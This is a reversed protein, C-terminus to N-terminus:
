GLKSIFSSILDSAAKVTNLNASIARQIELSNISEGLFFVNSQELRGSSITGATGSASIPSAPSGSSLTETFTTGSAQGLGAPNNFYTMAIRYGTASGNHNLAGTGTDWAYESVDGTLGTIAVISGSANLGYVQMGASTVLSNNANISFDGARTYKYTTGGDDSVIFLGRGSIALDIPRNSSVLSGQSFNIGISAVGVGQGFQQPNTGGFNSFVSASTGPRMMKDLVTQFSIDLSKYGTVSLNAINANSVNLASNYVQIANKAMKMAEFM